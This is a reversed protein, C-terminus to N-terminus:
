ETLWDVSNQLMAIFAEHQHADGDHGLTINVVNGEGYETVWAVPYEEGTGPEIGIALVHMDAGEEDREFRYLEDRITFQGPVGTMVPHDPDSVRVEFEGLPGHSRTGGGILDRYYEPWDWIFWTSAHVLLLGKGSGVFGLLEGPFEPVDIPQNTNMYFLDQGDLVPLVSEPDDTYEVVAGASAILTSDEQHFWRDFDHHDGGGLILVRSGPDEPLQAGSDGSCAFAGFFALLGTMCATVLLDIKKM